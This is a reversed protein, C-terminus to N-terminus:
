CAITAFRRPKSVPSGNRVEVTWEECSGRRKLQIVCSVPHANLCTATQPSGHAIATVARRAAAKDAASVHWVFLAGWAFLAAVIVVVGVTAAGVWWIFGRQRKRPREHDM